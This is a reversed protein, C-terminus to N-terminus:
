STPVTVNRIHTESLNFLGFSTLAMERMASRSISREMGTNVEIMLLVEVEVGVSCIERILPGSSWSTPPAKCQHINAIQRRM